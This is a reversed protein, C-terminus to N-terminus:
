VIEVLSLKKYFLFKINIITLGIDNEEVLSHLNTLNDPIINLRIVYM